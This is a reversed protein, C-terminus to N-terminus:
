LPAFRWGDSTLDRLLTRLLQPTDSAKINDHLVIISGPRAYQLIHREVKFADIGKLYDGPMVDWMTLRQRRIQCWYRMAPTFRGFPPRMWRVPKQTLDELLISSQELESIMQSDSVNWPDPHSFTHNGVTHGADAIDRVLEPFAKVHRGILFFSARADYSSLVDLLKGTLASTPGDDFTLYLTKKATSVRWLLDPFFGPVIRALRTALLPIM